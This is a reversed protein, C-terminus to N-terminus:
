SGVYNWYLLRSPHTMIGSTSLDEKKGSFCNAYWEATYIGM